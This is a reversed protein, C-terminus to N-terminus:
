AAFTKSGATTQDGRGAWLGAIAIDEDLAEWHLGRSSIRVEARQEHAGHLLRPFWALPAGLVRGDSLAVWISDADFRVNTASVSGSMGLGKWSLRRAEVVEVLERLTRASYGDNYAVQVEPRLWLKAESAAKEVHIHVPERPAGENAYFFFRFREHRFVVPM